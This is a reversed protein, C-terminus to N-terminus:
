GSRGCSRSLPPFAMLLQNIATRDSGLAGAIDMAKASGRVRLHELTRSAMEETM